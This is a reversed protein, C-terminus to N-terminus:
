PRHYMAEEAEEHALLDNVMAAFEKKPLSMLRSIPWEKRGKETMSERMMVACQYKHKGSYM